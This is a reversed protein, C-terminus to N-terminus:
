KLKVTSIIEDKISACYNNPNEGNSYDHISYDLEYIINDKITAYHHEINGNKEITLYYWKYDNLEIEKIESVKDKLTIYTREELYEKGDKYHNYSEKNVDIYFNCSTDDEYLHYSISDGYSKKEFKDPVNVSIKNLAEKYKKNYTNDEISGLVMIAIIIIVGGFLIKIPKNM